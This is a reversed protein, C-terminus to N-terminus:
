AAVRRGDAWMQSPRLDFHQALLFQVRPTPVAGCREIRRITHGSVGVVVGLQEPSLGADIRLSRLHSAAFHDRM